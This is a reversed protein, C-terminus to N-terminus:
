DKANKDLPEFSKYEKEPVLMQQQIIHMM